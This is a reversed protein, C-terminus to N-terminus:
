DRISQLLGLTDHDIMAASFRATYATNIAEPQFFSENVMFICYGLTLFVGFQEMAADFSPPTVGQQGLADLYHQVLARDWHRLDATDLGGTLHYTVEMM